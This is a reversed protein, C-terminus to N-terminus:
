SISFILRHHYGVLRAVLFHSLQLYLTAVQTSASTGTVSYSVPIEYLMAIQQFQIYQLNLILASLRAEATSFLRLLVDMKLCIM